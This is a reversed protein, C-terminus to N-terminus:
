FRSERWQQALPRLQKIDGDMDRSLQAKQEATAAALLQQQRLPSADSQRAGAVVDALYILRDGIDWREVIRCDFWALCDDLLPSGSAGLSCAVDALKDRQRGSGLAFNFATALQEPRLLHVAMAGSADVLEATFHNPALGAIILPREPDISAQMVWTALLGGRRTGAAATVVWVERDLARFAADIADHSLM